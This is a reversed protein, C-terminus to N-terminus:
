QMGGSAASSSEHLPVRKLSDTMSEGGHEYARALPRRIVGPDSDAGSLECFHPGRRVAPIM